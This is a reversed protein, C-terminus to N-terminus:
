HCEVRARRDHDGHGQGDRGQADHSQSREEGHGDLKGGMMKILKTMEPAPKPMPMSAEAAPKASKSSSATPKDQAM